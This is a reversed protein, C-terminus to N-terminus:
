FLQKYIASIANKLQENSAFIVGNKHMFTTSSDNLMLDNGYIDTSPFGAENFLCATAAFDWISGGGREKKPFKFYASHKHSLVSCANLVAGNGYQIQLGNLHLQQALSELKDVIFGYSSSNKFSRDMFCVLENEYPDDEHVSTIEFGQGKVAIYVQDNIPNCIVGIVPIGSKTVLSISVSYGPRNETFALTGDLPDICWFYNKELRSKDDFLEETLLGLDYNIISEKLHNLIITQSEKDVQTVVSAAKSKVGTKYEVTIQQHSNQRIFVAAKKAAISALKALDNLNKASLKM